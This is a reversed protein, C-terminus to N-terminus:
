APVQGLWEVRLRDLGVVIGEATVESGFDDDVPEYGDLVWHDGEDTVVAIGRPARELGGSIRLRNANVVLQIGDM